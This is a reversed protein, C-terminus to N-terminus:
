AVLGQSVTNQGISGQGEGVRFPWGLTRTTQVGLHQSREGMMVSIGTPKSGPGGQSEDDEAGLLCKGAWM